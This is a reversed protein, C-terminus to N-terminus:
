TGVALILLKGYFMAFLPTALKAHLASVAQPAQLPM